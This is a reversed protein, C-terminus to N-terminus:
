RRGVVILHGLNQTYIRGDPGLSVPTYAAGVAQDLFLRGALGGGPSIAYLFGDESNAYVVGDRDIAVHNVCFEFGHPHDAVCTLTGDGARSCTETNTSAFRWEATLSPALQTLYYAEPDDPYTASRDSPCVALLNCYSGVPYHNEKLIISYTGGHPYIAPTTDWGFPYAGLYQGSGSFRMMHGQDFNYRTNAGFLVSGDPAVTPSSTSDEDVVGAPPQNTAPDVGASAGDSCGGPTGNPPMAVNCGDDLRGRLSAAWRLGLDPGLAILFGYRGNFHARSVTYVAGDPGVAPALNLAPRQSGCPITPAIADPAPPWPPPVQFTSECPEGAAPAGPVLGRYSVKSVAGDPAVRVLWSDVVDAGWPNAPDLRIADYYVNGGAVTIPGVTFVGPTTSPGFPEVWRVPGGSAKDLVVVAGGGAPMWVCRGSLAAHFVPEWSPGVRYPNAGTHWHPAPKWDTLFQWRVGLQNNSWDLREVGWVQTGWTSLATFPGDKVEAYVSTGEVLPVQYHAFLDGYQQVIAAANPDVVLDQVVADLPQGAALVAGGHGADRGWQYWTLGAKPLVRAIGPLLLLPILVNAGRMSRRM